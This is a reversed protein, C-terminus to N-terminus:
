SIFTYNADSEGKGKRGLGRRGFGETNGAESELQYGGKRQNNDKYTHKYCNM